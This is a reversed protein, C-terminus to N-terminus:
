TEDILGVVMNASLQERERAWRGSEGRAAIEGVGHAHGSPGPYPTLAPNEDTGPLLIEGVGEHVRRQYNSATASM